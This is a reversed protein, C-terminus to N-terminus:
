GFEVIGDKGIPAHLKCNPCHWGDAEEVMLATHCRPCLLVEALPRGGTPLSDEAKTGWVRDYDVQWSSVQIDEVGLAALTDAIKQATMTKGPMMRTHIRNTVLLVGGPRLVRAMEKLVKESSAMFELAELCTVVDFCDDPFPLKEAPSWILSVRPEGGVKQAAKRLMRRSLDVGIVRGQFKSHRLLALPLRATGTAVDLVLPSRHPSVAQMLPHALFQNDYDQSFKKIDDYRDAFVDYLWVVVRRGLYVGESEILLWWGLAVIGLAIAALILLRLIDTM